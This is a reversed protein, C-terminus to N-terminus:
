VARTSSWESLAQRFTTIGFYYGVGCLIYDLVDLRDGHLFQLTILVAFLVLWLSVCVTGVLRFYPRSRNEASLCAAVILSIFGLAFGGLSGFLLFYVFIAM